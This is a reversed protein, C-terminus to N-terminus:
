YIIYYIYYFKTIDHLVCRTKAYYFWRCITFVIPSNAVSAILGTVALATMSLAFAPRRGWRDAADGMVLGGFLYGAMPAAGMAARWREGGACVLGWEKVVSDSAERTDVYLQTDNKWCQCSDETQQIVEWGSTPADLCTYPLKRGVFVWSVLQMSTLVYPVSFLFYLIKQHKGFEGIERLIDDFTTKEAKQTANEEQLLDLENM